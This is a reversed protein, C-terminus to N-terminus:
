EEDLSISLSVEDGAAVSFSRTASEFGPRVVELEHEGADLILGSRLRSLEGGTGLFRGDLYVSADSPQVSVRARGPEGRADLTRPGEASRESYSGRDSRESRRVYEENERDRRLREDRRVTSKSALDEPRTEVGPTMDDDVDIVQGAYITIQRAITQFGPSFIVVDYTGQELWLYDPFGDFDDAKGVLEGDIYVEAREPSVDLDLAGHTRDAMPYVNTYGWGPGWAAYGAGWGWYYPSHIVVGGGHRHASAVAPLTVLLILALGSSKLVTRFSM